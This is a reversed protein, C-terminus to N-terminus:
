QSLGDPSHLIRLNPLPLRLLDMPYQGCRWQLCNLRCLLTLSQSVVVVFVLLLKAPFSSNTATSSEMSTRVTRYMRYLLRECMSHVTHDTFCYYFLKFGTRSGCCNTKWHLYIRNGTSNRLTFDAPISEGYYVMEGLDSDDNITLKDDDGDFTM